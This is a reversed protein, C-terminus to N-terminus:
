VMVKQIKDQTEYSLWCCCCFHWAINQVNVFKVNLEVTNWKLWVFYLVSPHILYFSRFFFRLPFFFLIASSIRICEYECMCWRLFISFLFPCKASLSSSVEATLYELIAASYVAATAGVRGHSTTRNKLHRHIRGVPFQLFLFVCQAHYTKTRERNKKKKQEKRKRKKRIKNSEMITTHITTHLLCDYACFSLAGFHVCSSLLVVYVCVSM